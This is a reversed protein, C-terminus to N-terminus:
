PADVVLVGHDPLHLQPLQPHRFVIQFIVRKEDCMNRVEHVYSDDFFLVKGEEWGREEEGVRFKACSNPSPIKLGLHFKLQGNTTGFHPQIWTAPSIASYGARLIDYPSIKRLQALLQCAVPTDLSCLSIADLKYWVGSIEYRYWGGQGPHNICDQDRVLLNKSDIENYELLLRNAFSELLSVVPDLGHFENVQHWASSLLQDNFEKPMQLATKWPGNNLIRNGTDKEKQSIEDVNLTEPKELGIEIARRYRKYLLFLRIESDQDYSESLKLSEELINIAEAYKASCEQLFSKLKLLIIFADNTLGAPLLYSEALEVVKMAEDYDGRMRKDEALSVWTVLYSYLSAGIIGKVRLISTDYEEASHFSKLKRSTSALEELLTIRQGHLSNDDKTLKKLENELFQIRTHLEVPITVPELFNNGCNEETCVSDEAYVYLSFIIALIIM